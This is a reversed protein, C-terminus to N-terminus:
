IYGYSQRRTPLNGLYWKSWFGATDIGSKTWNKRNKHRETYRRKRDEDKLPTIQEVDPEDLKFTVADVWILKLTLGYLKVFILADPKFTNEHPLFVNGKEYGPHYLTDLLNCWNYPIANHFIIHSLPLLVTMLIFWPSMYECICRRLIVWFLYFKLICTM